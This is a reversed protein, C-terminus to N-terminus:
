PVVVDPNNFGAYGVIMLTTNADKDRNTALLYNRVTNAFTSQVCFSGVFPNESYLTTAPFIVIPNSNTNAIDVNPLNQSPEIKYNGTISAYQGSDIFFNISGNTSTGNQIDFVAIGTEDVFEIFGIINSCTVRVATFYLTGGTMTDGTLCNMTEANFHVEGGSQHIGDGNTM